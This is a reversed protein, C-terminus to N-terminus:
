PPPAQPHCTTPRNIRNECTFLKYHRYLGQLIKQTLHRVEPLLLSLYRETTQCGQQLFRGLSGRGRGFKWLDLSGSRILRNMGIWCCYRKAVPVLLYRVPPPRKPPMPLDATADIHAPHHSYQLHRSTQSEFPPATAYWPANLLVIVIRRIFPGFIHETYVSKGSSVSVKRNARRRGKDNIKKCYM